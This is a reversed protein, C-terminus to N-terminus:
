QEKRWEHLALILNVIGLFAQDLTITSFVAIMTAIIVVIWSIIKFIEDIIM